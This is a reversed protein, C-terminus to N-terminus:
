ARLSLVNGNADRALVDVEASIETSGGDRAWEHACEPCVYMPGDEYTLESTCKPCPPRAALPPWHCCGIAFPTRPM